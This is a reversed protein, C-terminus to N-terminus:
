CFSPIVFLVTLAIYILYIASIYINLEEKMLLAGGRDIAKIIESAHLPIVNKIQRTMVLLTNM